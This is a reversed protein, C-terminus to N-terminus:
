RFAGNNGYPTFAGHHFQPGVGGQLMNSRFAKNAQDYQPRGTPRYQGQEIDQDRGKPLGSRVQSGQHSGQMISKSLDRPAEQIRHQRPSTRNDERRGGFNEATEGEGPAQNNQETLKPCGSTATHFWWRCKECWPTHKCVVKITVIEGDELKMPLEPVFNSEVEKVLDYKRNMFKPRTKDPEYAKIVKGMSKELMDQVHFVTRIPIRLVIVWFKTEDDVKRKDELEKRTMWPKFLMPYSISGVVVKDEGKAIMWQAIEETMAIYSVMNLGEGHIRGRRVGRDFIRQLIWGNEYARILDERIKLSLDQAAGQFIVTFTRRKIWATTMRGITENVKFIRVGNEVVFAEHDLGEPMVGDEFCLEQKQSSGWTRPSSTIYECHLRRRFSTRYRIPKGKDDLTKRQLVGDPLAILSGFELMNAFKYHSAQPCAREMAKWDNDNWEDLHLNMYPVITMWPDEDFDEKAAEDIWTQGDHHRVSRACPSFPKALRMHKEPSLRMHTEPSMSVSTSPRSSM